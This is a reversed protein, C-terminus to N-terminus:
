QFIETLQMVRPIRNRNWQEVAQALMHAPTSWELKPQGLAYAARQLLLSAQATDLPQALNQKSLKQGKDNMALPIHLYCPTPYGLCRQLWIQRATNDLLDAGRVVHTVHQMADDVVVALQYSVVGDRRRLVFDGVDVALNSCHMGQLLDDFCILEQSVQLRVAHADLSLKLARCRAPYIAHAAYAKRSCQCGYILDHAALQDLAHQYFSTRMQQYVIPQDSVFGFALLTEVIAHESSADIRAIDTDEIRILWQGGHAKADCYSAFATLLSGFHLPGTPSPAFRGVYPRGSELHM